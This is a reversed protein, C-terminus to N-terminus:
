MVSLNEYVCRIRQGREGCTEDMETGFWMCQFAICQIYFSKGWNIYFNGFSCLIELLVKHNSKNFFAGTCREWSEFGRSGLVQSSFCFAFFLLHGGCPICTLPPTPPLGKGCPARHSGWLHPCAAWLAGSLHATCVSAGSFCMKLPSGWDQSVLEQWTKSSEWCWSCSLPCVGEEPVGGGPVSIPRCPWSQPSGGRGCVCLPWGELTPQAWPWGSPTLICPWSLLSLLVWLFAFQIGGVGCRWGCTFIRVRGGRREATQAWGQLEEGLHQSRDEPLVSYMDDEELRRKHGIKFLPNLWRHFILLFPSHCIDLSCM